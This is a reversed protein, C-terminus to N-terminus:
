EYKLSKVPDTVATKYSQLIVMLLTIILLLLAPIAFMWWSLEIHYVFTNLWQSTFYFALPVALVFSGILLVAYEKSLMVLISPISAGLVKRIGIEKNRKTVNLSVLGLIGTM